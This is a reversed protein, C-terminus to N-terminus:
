ELDETRGVCGISVGTIEGSKVLGWVEEDDFRQWQLWAGKKITRGDDLTFESPNIFSEVIKVKDTMVRHFLNARNCYENFSHCAKEIEASSYIDGHEDVEEPSLVVFMAMRKEEDLSKNVEVHREEREVPGFHKDLWESFSKILGEKNLKKKSRKVAALGTAIAKGENKYEKLAANAAAVFIDVDHGKLKKASAPLNTKSWPM